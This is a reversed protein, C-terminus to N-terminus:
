KATRAGRIRRSPLDYGFGHNVGRSPRGATGILLRGQADITPNTIEPPLRLLGSSYYPQGSVGSEVDYWYVGEPDTATGVRGYLDAEKGLPKPDYWGPPTGGSGRGHNEAAQEAKTADDGNNIEFGIAAQQSTDEM